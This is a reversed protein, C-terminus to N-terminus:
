FPLNELIEIYIQMMFLAHVFFAVPLFVAPLSVLLVQM